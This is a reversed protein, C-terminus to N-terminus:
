YATVPGDSRRSSCGNNHDGFIRVTPNHGRYIHINVSPRGSACNYEVGHLSIDGGGDIVLPIGNDCNTALTGGFVQASQVNGIALGVPCSNGEIDDNENDIKYMSFRDNGKLLTVGPECPGGIDPRSGDAQKCNGNSCFNNVIQASDSGSVFCYPAGMLCGNHEWLNINNAGGAQAYCIGQGNGGGLIGTSTLCDNNRFINEFNVAYAYICHNAGQVNVNEIRSRVLETTWIGNSTSRISQIMLDHIAVNQTLNNSGQRRPILYGVGNSGNAQIAAGGPNVGITPNSANVEILTNSDSKLLVNPATISGTNRVVKSVRISDMLLGPSPNSLVEVEPWSGIAVGATLDENFTTKITGTASATAMPGRTQGPAMRYLRLTGAGYDCDVYQPTGTPFMSPDTATYTGVTTTLSCTLKSSVLKVCFSQNYPDDPLKQGSSCVFAQNDGVSGVKAYFEIAAASQGYLTNTEGTDGLNLWWHGDFSFSATSGTVGSLGAGTSIGRLGHPYVIIGYGEFGGNDVITQHGRGAGGVNINDYQILLPQTTWYEGAPAYVSAGKDHTGYAAAEAKSIATQWATTDDAVNNGAAGYSFPNFVRDTTGGIGGGRRGGAGQVGSTQIPGLQNGAHPTAATGALMLLALLFPLKGVTM